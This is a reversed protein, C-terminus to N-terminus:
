LMGKAKLAATLQRQAAALDLHSSHGRAAAMLADVALEWAETARDSEPLSAIFDLGDQVTEIRRGDRLILRSQLHRSWWM